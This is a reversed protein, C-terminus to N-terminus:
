PKCRSGCKVRLFVNEARLRDIEQRLRREQKACCQDDASAPLALLCLLALARV